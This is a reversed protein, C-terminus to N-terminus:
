LFEQVIEDSPHICMVRLGRTGSNHFSHWAHPPVTLTDGATTLTSQGSVVFTAEGELVHWTEAYPHRHTGPGGGPAANVMFFSVAAGHDRGEFRLTQSQPARLREARVINPM